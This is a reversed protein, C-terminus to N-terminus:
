QQAWQLFSNDDNRVALFSRSAIEVVDSQKTTGGRLSTEFFKESPYKNEFQEITLNNKIDNKM